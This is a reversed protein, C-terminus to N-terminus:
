GGIYLFFLKSCYVWENEHLDMKALLVKQNPDFVWNKNNQFYVFQLQGEIM